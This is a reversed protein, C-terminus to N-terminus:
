NNNEKLVEIIKRAVAAAATPDQGTILRGDSLMYGDWGESSYEFVGGRDAISQEISFPFQQYYRGETDEFLDPFGNVKKQEYIYKGDSTKLNVIGATGHCLTSVIGENDEYISRSIQQIKENEPVGFMASGGGVYYVASYVKSDVEDPRSTHELDNMFHEDYLYKKTLSDSTHIYGIPIAGGEPSVFDIHYGENALVDYALIIEHFHNATEIDSDGYHDANSVIFLINGKAGTLDKTVPPTEIDACSVSLITLVLLKLQKYIM